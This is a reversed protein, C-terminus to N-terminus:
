CWLLDIDVDAISHCSIGEISIFEKRLRLLLVRERRWREDVGLEGELPGSEGGEHLGSILVVVPGLLEEESSRGRCTLDGADLILELERNSSSCHFRVM